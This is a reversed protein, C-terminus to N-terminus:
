STIRKQPSAITKSCTFVSNVPLGLNDTVARAIQRTKYPRTPRRDLTDAALRRFGEHDMTLRAARTTPVMQQGPAHGCRDVAITEVRLRQLAFYRTAADTFPTFLPHLFCPM